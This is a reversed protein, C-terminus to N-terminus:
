TSPVSRKDGDGLLGSSSSKKVVQSLGLVGVGLEERAGEGLGAEVGTIERDADGAIVV